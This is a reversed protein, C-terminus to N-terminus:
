RTGRPEYGAEQVATRVSGFRNRYTEPSPGPWGRLDDTSPSVGYFQVFADIWDLMEETSYKKPRGGQYGTNIDHRRAWYAVCAETVPLEDAIEKYTLDEEEYKEKLWSEDQWPKDSKAAM